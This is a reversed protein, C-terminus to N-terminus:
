RSFPSYATPDRIPYLIVISCLVLREIDELGVMLLNAFIMAFASYTWKMQSSCSLRQGVLTDEMRSLMVSILPLRGHQHTHSGIADAQSPMGARTKHQGICSEREAKCHGIHHMWGVSFGEDLM